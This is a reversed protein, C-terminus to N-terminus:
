RTKLSARRFASAVSRPRPSVGITEFIKGNTSRLRWFDTIKACFSRLASLFHLRFSRCAARLRFKQFKKPFTPPSIAREGREVASFELISFSAIRKKSAFGNKSHKLEVGRKRTTQTPRLCVDIVKLALRLIDHSGFFGTFSSTLETSFLSSHSGLNTVSFVSRGNPRATPRRKYPSVLTPENGTKKQERRFPFYLFRRRGFM